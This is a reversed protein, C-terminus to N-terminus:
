VIVDEDEEDADISRQQEDDTDQEATPLVSQCTCRALARLLRRCERAGGENLSKQRRLEVTLTQIQTRLADRESLLDDMEQLRERVQARQRGQYMRHRELYEQYRQYGNPDVEVTAATAAPRPRRKPGM